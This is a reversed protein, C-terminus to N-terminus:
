VSKQVQLDGPNAYLMKKTMMTKINPGPKSFVRSASTSASMLSLRDVGGRNERLAALPSLFRNSQKKRLGDLM